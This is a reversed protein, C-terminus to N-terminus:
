ERAQCHPFGLYTMEGLLGEQVSFPPLMWNWAERGISHLQGIILMKQFLDKELLDVLSLHWRVASCKQSSLRRLPSWELFDVAGQGLQVESPAPTLEKPRLVKTLLAVIVGKVYPNLPLGFGLWLDLPLEAKSYLARLRAIRLSRSHNLRSLRKFGVGTLRCLTLFRRCQYRTHIAM